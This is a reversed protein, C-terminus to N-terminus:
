NLFVSFQPMRTSINVRTRRATCEIVYVNVSLLCDFILGLLKIPVYFCSLSMTKCTTCSLLWVCEGSLFCTDYVPTQWSDHFNHLMEWLATPYWCERVMSNLLWRKKLRTYVFLLVYVLWLFTRCTLKRLLRM